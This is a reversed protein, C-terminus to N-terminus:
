TWLELSCICCVRLLDFVSIEVASWYIQTCKEGMSGIVIVESDIGKPCDEIVDKM